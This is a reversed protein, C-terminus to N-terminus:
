AADGAIGLERRLRDEEDAVAQEIKSITSLRVDFRGSLVRHVTDESVGAMEALTKYPLRIASVRERIVTVNHSQRM